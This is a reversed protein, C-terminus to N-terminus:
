INIQNMIDEYGTIKGGMIDKYLNEYKLMKKRSISFDFSKKFLLDIDLNEILIKMVDM